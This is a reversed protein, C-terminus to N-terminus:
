TMGGDEKKESVLSSLISLPILTEAIKVVFFICELKKYIEFTLFPLAFLEFFNLRFPAFM